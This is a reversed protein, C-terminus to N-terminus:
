RVVRPFTRTAEPWRAATFLRGFELLSDVNHASLRRTAFRDLAAAGGALPQYTASRLLPNVWVLERCNLRLRRLQSTLLAPADRELGDTLLLVWAGRGLVRRSWDSNFEELAAGLRTGSDWDKVLRSVKALAADPDPTELARTLRTLRTAFAFTEVGSGRRTLLHAYQLFMRAYVAMSGSVDVLLVWDRPRRQRGQLPVKADLGRALAGLWRRRDPRHGAVAPEFRRTLQTAAPLFPAALLRRAAALEAAGMQEFDKRALLEELSATGTAELLTQDPRQVSPVPGTALLAEALRRMAPPPPTEASRPLVKESAPDPVEAHPYFALFLWDFLEFDAPDTVLCARLAAWVDRRRRVDVEALAQAALITAGTGLRVGGARLGKVLTVLGSPLTGVDGEEAGIM